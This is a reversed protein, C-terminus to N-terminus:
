KLKWVVFINYISKYTYSLSNEEEKEEDEKAM